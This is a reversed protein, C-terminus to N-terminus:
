ARDSSRRAGEAIGAEMQELTLAPGEYPLCGFVHTSKM